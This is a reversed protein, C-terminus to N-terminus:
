DKDKEFRVAMSNVYNLSTAVRWKKTKSQRISFWIRDKGKKKGKLSKSYIEFDGTDAILEGLDKSAM